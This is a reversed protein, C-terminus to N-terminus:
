KNNDRNFLIQRSIRLCSVTLAGCRCCCSDFFRVVSRDFSRCAVVVVVSQSESFSCLWVPRLRSQRSSIETEREWQRETVCTLPSSCLSCLLLLGWFACTKTTVKTSVTAFAHVCMCVCVHVHLNHTCVNSLFSFRFYLVFQLHISRRQRAHTM